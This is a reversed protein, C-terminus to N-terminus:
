RATARARLYSAFLAVAILVAAVSGFTV